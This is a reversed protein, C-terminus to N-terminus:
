DDTEKSEVKGKQKKANTFEVQMDICNAPLRKNREIKKTGNECWILIAEHDCILQVVNEFSQRGTTTNLVIRM